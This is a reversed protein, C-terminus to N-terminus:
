QLGWTIRINSVGNPVWIANSPPSCANPSCAYATLTEGGVLAVEASLTQADPTRAVEVGDADVRFYTVRADASPYDWEVTAAKATAAILGVAILGLVTGIVINTARMMMM